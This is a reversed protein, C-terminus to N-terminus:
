QDLGRQVGGCMGTFRDRAIRTELCAFETSVNKKLTIFKGIAADKRSGELPGTM